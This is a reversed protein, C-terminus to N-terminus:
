STVSAGIRMESAFYVDTAIAGLAVTSGPLAVAITDIVNSDVAACSSREASFTPVSRVCRCPSCDNIAASASQRNM